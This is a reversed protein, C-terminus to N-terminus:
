RTSAFAPGEPERGRYWDVTRRVGDAFPVTVSFGLRERALSIDAVSHRVDGPRPPGFTPGAVTGSAESIAAILELLTTPVGTGVNCTLGAGSPERAALLFANVADDIYTFDRSQQGDGHVSPRDGRLLRTVFAPVVAAYESTPDQGPGFVNFFRLAVTEVGHLAGLSHTLHEGALKSVAYPSEPSPRQSERIPLERASGYVASSAAYVVRRTGHRAAALMVEITGSANIADTRRPDDASKVVSALAALHFVVEAGRAAEDLAAPDLISGITLSVDGRVDELREQVGTSLDDIVSISDGRAVVARVLHHGIFGAGGTVLVKV